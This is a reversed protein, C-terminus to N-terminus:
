EWKSQFNFFLFTYGDETSPTIELRYEDIIIEDDDDDIQLAQSPSSILRRTRKIVPEIEDSSTTSLRKM